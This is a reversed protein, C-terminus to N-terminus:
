SKKIMREILDVLRETAKGDQKYAHAYVFRKGEAKIKERTKKDYLAKKIAPILDAESSVRLTVEKYYPTPDEGEGMHLTVGVKGLIIGETAITSFGTLFLDCIYLAEFTDADKSLVVARVGEEELVDKYWEGREGPHPKVVVELDQFDKLAKLVSRLFTRGETIGINETGVLVIKKQSDLNLRDCFEKKSYVRDAMALVDYRPQGTIVVSSPPYASMKTLMDYYYPGYVATEDPIPCYPAEISGSLSMSNQSYIYGKHLPGINGHQIALTPVGQLKGAVVLSKEFIGYESSVLILDPKEKEVLEKAMEITKVVHGLVSYFYVPLEGGLGYKELSRIFNGDRRSVERWTNGFHRRADYGKKWIKASWYANFEKHIAIKQCHMKEIMTKLGSPSYKLPSVTVLEFDRKKLENMISDLFVDCKRLEGGSDRVARWQLNPAIMLVKPKKGDTEVSFFNSLVKSLISTVSDYLFEALSFVYPNKIALNLSRTSQASNYIRFRIFWWLALDDYETLEILSKGDTKLNLMEQESVLWKEPQLSEM